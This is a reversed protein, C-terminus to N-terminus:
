KSSEQGDEVKRGDVHTILCEGTRTDVNCTLKVEYLAYIFNQTAKESLKLIMAKDANEEKSGHVYFDVTKIM